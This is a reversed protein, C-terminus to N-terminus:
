MVFPRKVSCDILCMKILVITAGACLDLCIVLWIEGVYTIIPAEKLGVGLGLLSLGIFIHPLTTAFYLVFWGVLHPINVFLMARKRGMPETIPGSLLSGVITLISMISGLWSAQAGTIRITENPNADSTLAPILLISFVSSVGLDM